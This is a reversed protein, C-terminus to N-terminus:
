PLRPATIYEELAPLPVGLDYAIDFLTKKELMRTIRDRSPMIYYHHGPRRPNRVGSPPLKRRPRKRMVFDAPILQPHETLYLYLTAYSCDLMGATVTKSQTESLLQTIRGQHHDLM